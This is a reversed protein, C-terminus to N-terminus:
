LPWNHHDSLKICSPLTCSPLSPSHHLLKGNTGSAFLLFGEVSRANFHITVWKRRQQSLIVDECGKGDVACRRSAMDQGVSKPSPMIVVKPGQAFAVTHQNWAKDKKPTHWSDCSSGTGPLQIEKLRFSPLM